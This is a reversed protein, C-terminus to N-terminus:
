TVVTVIDGIVLVDVRFVPAKAIEPPKESLSVIHTKSHERLEYNVVSRVLMGPELPCPLCLGTGYPPIKVNPAIIGVPKGLRPDDELIEFCGVPGIIGDCSGIVPVAEIGVLRIQVKVVGPNPPGNQFYEVV